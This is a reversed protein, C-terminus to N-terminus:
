SCNYGEYYMEGSSSVTIKKGTEGTRLDCITLYGSSSSNGTSNFEIGNTNSFNTTYIEIASDLPDIEWLIKDGGSISRKTGADTFVFWGKQWNTLVGCDTGADNRICITVPSNRSLAENRAFLLSSHLKESVASLQQNQLYDHFSSFSLAILIAIIAIVAMM